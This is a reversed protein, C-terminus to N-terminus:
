DDDKEKTANKIWLYCPECLDRLMIVLEDGQTIDWIVSFVYGRLPKGCGDCITVDTM